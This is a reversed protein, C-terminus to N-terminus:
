RWWIGYCAWFMGILLLMWVLDGGWGWAHHDYM